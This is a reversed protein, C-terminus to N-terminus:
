DIYRCSLVVHNRTCHPELRYPTDIQVRTYFVTCMSLDSYLKPSRQDIETSAHPSSSTSAALCRWSFLSAVLNPFNNDCVSAYFEPFRCGNASGGLRLFGQLSALRVSVQTAGLCTSADRSKLNIKESHAVHSPPPPSGSKKKNKKGRENLLGRAPNAVTYLLKKWPEERYHNILNTFNVVTNLCWPLARYKKSPLRGSQYM